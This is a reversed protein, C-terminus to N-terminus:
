GSQITEMGDDPENDVVVIDWFYDVHWQSLISELAQELLNARRYTPVVVTLWPKSIYSPDGYVLRSKVHACKEFCDERSEYNVVSCKEM